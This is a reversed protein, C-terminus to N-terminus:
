ILGTTKLRVRALIDNSTLFLSHGDEGFACNAVPRGTEIVGILEGAPTIVLVGGPLVAVPKPKLYQVSLLYLVGMVAMWVAVIAFPGWKLGTPLDNSNPTANSM